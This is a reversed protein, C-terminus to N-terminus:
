RRRGHPRPPPKSGARAARRERRAARKRVQEEPDREPRPVYTYSERRNAGPHLSRWARHHRVATVVDSVPRAPAPGRRLIEAVSEGSEPFWEEPDSEELQALVARAEPARMALLGHGYMEALDRNPVPGSLARETREILVAASEAHYGMEGLAQVVRERVEPDPRGYEGKLYAHLAPRAADGLRAMLEPIDGHFPEYRAALELVLRAMEVSGLQSLLAAAWGASEQVRAPASSAAHLEELFRLLLPAADSGHALIAELLEPTPDDGADHLNQILAPLGHPYESM